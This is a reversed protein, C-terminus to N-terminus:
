LDLGSQDVFKSISQANKFTINFKPLQLTKGSFFEELTLIQLRPYNFGAASFHGSNAVTKLMPETPSQITLFVGLECKHKVMAGLLADIDKSQVKGGKVQFAAKIPQEVTPILYMGLGDVGQDAGKKGFTSSFVEFEMIWWDQFAFPNKVWLEIASEKDKPVGRITFKSLDTKYSDQLRRKMLSIAIPSIDIGIWKRKLYEAADLTTGCGCFGDLVVDNENSSAKIIRELLARPKQTPYGLREKASSNLIPLNWVSDLPKGAAIVESVLRKYRKGKKGGDALIYEVGNEDVMVDHRSALFQQKNWEESVPNFVVNKDKSYFLIIDHKRSFHEKHFATRQGYHWIIENRFNKENFVADCITKLYHSATPDCHLYFSGTKKLVRHLELIRLTMMVLYPYVQPAVEQYAKLLSYLKETQITQLELLSAGVSKYSWTDEFAVRQTQIEKDDFFINYNRKSNFPPDIYILDVSEDKIYKRLVDLCDGLYLQNM